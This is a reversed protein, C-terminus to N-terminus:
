PHTMPVSDELTLHRFGEFRHFTLFNADHYTHAGGLGDDHATRSVAILDEGEALWDVYQFAHHQPQPHHLLVCRVQFSTLDPSCLLALTNRIAAPARDEYDRPIVNALTWYLQSPPDYRLAFKTNAGPLPLFDQDPDFFCRTGDRSVHVRAARGGPFPEDVRLLNVLEGGPTVVANGELWGQFRGDLWSLDSGLPESFTWNERMLPDADVPVSMMISRFHSGWGGPGEADEIARWLRGEHEIVPMPACHYRQDDRLLGTREDEPETWTHGADRSQRIIAAGYEKSTGLLYLVDRNLFLTSWFQGQIRAILSWTEGQDKSSFVRTSDFSSGPGFIDHSALYGGDPLLAISPSGIYCQTNAPIHDIVKGPIPSSTSTRM